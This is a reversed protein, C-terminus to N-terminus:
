YVDVEEPQPRSMVSLHEALLQSRKTIFAKKTCEPCGPNGRLLYRNPCCQKCFERGCWDCNVRSTFFVCFPEGCSSCFRGGCQRYEEPAPTYMIPEVKDKVETPVDEHTRIVSFLVGM